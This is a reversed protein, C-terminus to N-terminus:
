GHHLLKAVVKNVQRQLLREVESFLWAGFLSIFVSAAGIIVAREISLGGNANWELAAWSTFTIIVCFHIMYLPFSIEGMFISLKKELLKRLIPNTYLCVVLITALLTGTKITPTVSKMIWCAVYVALIGAWSFFTLNFKNKLSALREKDQRLMSLCIGIFFLSLYNNQSFLFLAIAAATAIPWKFRKYQILFIFTLLSGLMEISMTWLFPNYSTEKQHDFYVDYTAYQLADKLNPTFNVFVGLWEQRNLLAAAEINKNLALKLTLYTLGCTLVIPITLRFYRKISANAVINLDKRAFFQTALADGSLIFFVFVSLPGSLFFHLYNNRFEPFRVGFTEWFLHFLVVIFAAWGRIGDIYEIRNNM